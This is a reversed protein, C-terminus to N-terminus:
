RLGGQDSGGGTDGTAKHKGWWIEAEIVRPMHRFGSYRDVNGLRICTAWSKDCLSEAGTYGCGPMGSSIISKFNWNCTPSFYRRPISMDWRTFDNKVSLRVSASDLNERIDVEDVNGSFWVYPTTVSTGSIYTKHITCEKGQVQESMVMASLSRVVNSAIIEVSDMAPGTTRKVESLLVPYPVYTNSNWIIPKEATTVYGQDASFAFTVLHHPQGSGVYKPTPSDAGTWDPRVDGSVYYWMSKGSYESVMRKGEGVM